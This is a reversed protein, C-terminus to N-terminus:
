EEAVSNEPYFQRKIEEKMDEWSEINCIGRELDNYRRRWWLMAADTFYLAVTQIKIADEITGMANFYQEIGWLFNDIERANRSGVYSK